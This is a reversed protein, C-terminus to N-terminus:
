GRLRMMKMRKNNPFTRGKCIPRFLVHESCTTVASYRVHGYTRRTINQSTPEGVSQHSHEPGVQNKSSEPPPASRRRFLAGVYASVDEGSRRDSHHATSIHCETAM